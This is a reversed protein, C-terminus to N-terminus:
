GYARTIAADIANIIANSSADDALSGVLRGLAALPVTLIGLPNLHVHRGAILLPPTLEKDVERPSLVVLPIVVRSPRGDYRASQVVVVFPTGATNRGTTAHVDFQAM